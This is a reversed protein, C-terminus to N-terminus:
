VIYKKVVPIRNLIFSIIESILYTGFILIPMAIYPNITASHFKLYWEIICIVGVHLMYVGYTDKSICSIFKETRESYKRDEFVDKVFVFVFLSQFLVPISYYEYLERYFSGNEQSFFLTGFPVIIFSLIGLTYIIALFKKKLGYKAIYHGMFFYPLYGLTLHFFAQDISIKFWSLKPVMIIGPILFTFVLSVMIFYMTSEKSSTIKRLIPVVIYFGVILYVYWMHYYGEVLSSVIETKSMELYTPKYFMKILWFYVVSWFCFSTVLKLINKKYLNKIKVPRDTDLFLAGSIMCFVPVAWRSIGNFINFACWEFTNVAFKNWNPASVHIAIVAFSALIRLIDLYVIKKKPM